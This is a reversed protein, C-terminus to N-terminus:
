VIKHIRAAWLAFVIPLGSNRMMRAISWVGCQRMMLAYEEISYLNLIKM